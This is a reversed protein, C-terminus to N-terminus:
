MARWFRVRNGGRGLSRILQYKGLAKPLSENEHWLHAARALTDLHRVVNMLQISDPDQQDDDAIEDGRRRADLYRSLIKGLSADNGSKETM